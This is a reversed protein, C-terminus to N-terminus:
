TFYYCFIKRLCRLMDRNRRRRRELKRDLSERIYDQMTKEGLLDMLSNHNINGLAQVVSDRMDSVECRLLPILLKYMVSPSLMPSPSKSDQREFVLLSEPSSFLHPLSLDPSVCRFGASAAPITPVVRCAVSIYNKWLHLSINRENAPKKPATGPFLSSGQEKVPVSQVMPFLQTLRTHIITWSHLIASPCSKALRRHELFGLLCASWPDATFLQQSSGSRTIGDDLFGSTWQTSNRDALWQLDVGNVNSTTINRDALPLLAACQEIVARTSADMDDIVACEVVNSGCHHPLQVDSGTLRLLAKVEKLMHVALKRTALRIHCLM